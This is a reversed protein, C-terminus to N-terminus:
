QVAGFVLAVGHAAAAGVVLRGHLETFPVRGNELATRTAALDRSAFRVAAFAPSGPEPDPAGSGVLARLGADTVVEIRGRGTEIAWGTSIRHSSASDAFSKLFPVHAEPDTAAMVVAALGTVHNAHQQFDPNWFNEPFHQQCVFFGQGPIAPTVAFALTFALDVESGDPRRGKRAFTFTQDTGIGEAAFRAYDAKADSSELVLMALGERRELYDALFGAFQAVPESPAPRVFGAETTILVLFCGPFQVIHILTGWPLRNQAGVTFGLRRYLAAQADIDRAALVLHDIGRPM